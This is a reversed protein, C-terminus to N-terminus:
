QGEAVNSGCQQWMAAVNNRGEGKRRKKKLCVGYVGLVDISHLKRTKDIPKVFPVVHHKLLVVVHVVNGDVDFFDKAFAQVGQSIANKLLHEFTKVVGVRFFMQIQQVFVTQPPPHHRQPFFGDMPGSASYTFDQVDQVDQIIVFSLLHYWIIVFLASGQNNKTQNGEGGV